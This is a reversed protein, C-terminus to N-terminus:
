PTARVATSIQPTRTHGPTRTPENKTLMQVEKWPPLRAATAVDTPIADPIPTPAARWAMAPAKRMRRKTPNGVASVWSRYTPLNRTSPPGSLQRTLAVMPTPVNSMTPAMAHGCDENLQHVHHTPSVMPTRRTVGSAKTKAPSGLPTHRLRRAGTADARRTHEARTMARKTYALLCSSCRM